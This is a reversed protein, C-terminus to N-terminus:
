PKPVPDTERFAQDVTQVYVKDNQLDTITVKATSDPQFEIILDAKPGEVVFKGSEPYGFSTGKWPRSVSDVTGTTIANGDFSGSISGNWIGKKVVTDRVLDVTVDILINADRGGDAKVIHRKHLIKSAKRNKVSDPIPAGSADLFTVSDTRDREYGKQGTFTSRRVFCTCEPHFTLPELVVEGPTVTDSASRKFYYAYPDYYTGMTYFDSTYYYPAGGTYYVSDSGDSGCGAILTCAAGIMATFLCNLGPLHKFSKM